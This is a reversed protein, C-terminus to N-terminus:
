KRNKVYTDAWSFSEALVDLVSERASYGHSEFPLMVLRAAGGTGKLAQFLRESQIPFTGTNNDAEGHILLLPAKIKDAYTFPSMKMYTDQAEWFSRRETQFGFPTLTRNYAGSRAIGAAFLDSHALLNVTMFAGYSHGSICVRKRDIVGMSDLRDIASKASSVIQEVFTNNVTEPDGVVPMTADMLVAYGQTVFLLPTAGRFFTFADASGRVQGATAADSYELPYAWILCPLRTGARYDAPLYLMGSLPVGDPRVYKILEKKMGTLQPAPDAFATLAKRGTTGPVREYFNPPATRNEFRTLLRTQGPGIFSLFQEVGGEESRFVRETELTVINMRDLFPRDGLETAGRGSLFIWDGDKIVTSEGNPKTEYVPRGPDHYADNVNLSFLVRRSDAPHALSISATTRWRRDRNYEAALVDDQVPLWAFGTIRDQTRFLEKPDGAFPASLTMVKDRFPVKQVPDGGDLAEEWVLTASRLPQWEVDRPGTPVGQTPVEDSIPLDAITKVVNGKSDWVEVSRTFDEYPVRYSYPKRLVTVLLFRANPSFDSSAYLGPKGIPTQKGDTADVLMLQSAAYYTFLDEDYQSKLLDEYTAVKAIKGHTEETNPGLPRKPVPPPAGRGPDVARVLLTKNDSMWAFPADLVDNLTLGKIAGAKGSAPDAVWLEIRGEGDLEFAIRKGDHSWVPYGIRADPPLKVHVDTGTMLNKVTIGTYQTIRQRGSIQPSIRLGAIRLIPRALVEISPNPLYDVLMMANRAPSVEVLPTPAADVIRVVEEPPLRYPTQSQMFSPLLVLLLAFRIHRM